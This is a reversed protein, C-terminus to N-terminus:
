RDSRRFCGRRARASRACNEPRRRRRRQDSRQGRRSGRRGRPFPGSDRLLTACADRRLLGAAGMDITERVLDVFPLEHQEALVRSVQTPTVFGHDVLIEGLRKGSTEKDQLAQELQEVRSRATASCFREWPRGRIHLLKWKRGTIPRTWRSILDLRLCCSPQKAAPKALRPARRAAPDGALDAVPKENEEPDGLVVALLSAARSAPLTARSRTKSFSSPRKSRESSSVPPAASTTLWNVSIASVCLPFRGLKASAAAGSSASGSTSLKQAASRSRPTGTSVPTKPARM